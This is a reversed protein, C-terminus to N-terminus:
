SAETEVRNKGDHKARYLALDARELLMQWHTDSETLWALGISVTVRKVKNQELNIHEETMKRLREAVDISAQPGTAPLLVCFEEGGIRGIADHGRLAHMWAKACLTLVRDGTSHGSRDNIQKFDDIDLMLLALPANQRKARSFERDAYAFFARRNMLQTLDDVSAQRHLERQTKLLAKQTRYILATFGLAALTIVLIVGFVIRRVLYYNGLTEDLGRTVVVGLPFNELREVSVLRKMGDTQPSETLLTGKGKQFITRLAAEDLMNIGLYKADFPARSLLIGDDRLLLISGPTPFRWREHPAVLRDLEVAALIVHLGAVPSQMRWSIPIGWEGSVRSQVPAGIYLKRSLLPDLQATYYTRDSVDALPKRTPNPIYYLKGETSIVRIDVLGDSIDRLDNIMAVFAPDNLPDDGKYVQLWRDVVHLDTEIAKFLALTHQTVVGNLQVLERMSSSILREKYVSSFVLALSWLAALIVAVIIWLGNHMVRSIRRLTRIQMPGELDLGIDKCLTTLDFPLILIM